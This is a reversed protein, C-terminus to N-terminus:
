RDVQFRDGIRDGGGGGGGGKIASVRREVLGVITTSGKLRGATMSPGVGRRCGEGKGGKGQLGEGTPWM